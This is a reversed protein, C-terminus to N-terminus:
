SPGGARWLRYCVRGAVKARHPAWAAPVPPADGAAAESYILSTPKIWAGAALAAAASALLGSAFPPDLFVIDFPTAPGGLYALADAPVIDVDVGLRAANERLARLADPDCELMVVHAAGRSAAEFGLAGSGAFLDLCHSGPLSPALWNFLTERVRDPTPRLGAIAPFRLRRSRFRGAIIRVEGEGRARHPSM